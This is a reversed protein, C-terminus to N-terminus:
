VTLIWLHFAFAETKEENSMSKLDMTPIHRAKCKSSTTNHQGQAGQTSRAVLFFFNSVQRALPHRVVTFTHAEELAGRGYQEVYAHATAHFVRHYGGDEDYWERGWYDEECRDSLMSTASYASSVQVM